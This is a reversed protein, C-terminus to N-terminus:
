MAFWFDTFSYQMLFQYPRNLSLILPHPVSLKSTDVPSFDVLSDMSAEESSYLNETESSRGLVSM